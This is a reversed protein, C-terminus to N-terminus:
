DSVDINFGLKSDYHNLAFRFRRYQYPCNYWQCMKRIADKIGYVDIAAWQNPSAHEATAKTAKIWLKM